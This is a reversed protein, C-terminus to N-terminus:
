RDWPFQMTPPNAYRRMDLTLRAGCGPALRVTFSPADIAVRQQGGPQGPQGLTASVFQHEGYGGAQIVLIRPELQSVSVLSLV